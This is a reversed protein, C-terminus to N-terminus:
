DLQNTGKLSPSFEELFDASITPLTFYIFTSAHFVSIRRGASLSSLLFNFSNGFKRGVLRNESWNSDGSCFAKEVSGRDGM